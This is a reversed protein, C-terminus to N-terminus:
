GAAREREAEAAVQRQLRNWRENEPTGPTQVANVYDRDKAGRAKMQDIEGQAERGSVGYRESGGTILKDEAMGEGLRSFMDLMRGSGLLQRVGLMEDTTLGLAKQLQGIAAIKGRAAAGQQKEWAVADAVNKADETAIRDLEHQLYREMLGNMASAPIGLSLADPLLKGLLGDDLDVVAGSADQLKPVQYGEVGEPVGIAKNWAALEEASSGDGPVKVRGSDHIAKEASRLAKTVGDLDKFGKAKIWDLNSANEGDAEASLRGYWDPDVGGADGSGADGGQGGTAAPDGSAGSGAASGAAAGGGGFLAAVGGAGEGGGADGGAAAGGAGAGEDLAM